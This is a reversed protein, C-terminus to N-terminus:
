RRVDLNGMTMCRDPLASINEENFALANATGEYRAEGLISFSKGDVQTRRSGRFTSPVLM